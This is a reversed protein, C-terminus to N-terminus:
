GAEGGQAALKREIRYLRKRLAADEGRALLAATIAAAGGFDRARHELHKALELGGAADGQAWLRAWLAAAQDRAGSRRLLRACRAAAWAWDDGGELWPLADRYLSLAREPCRSREWWRAVAVADEPDLAEGETLLRALAALLGALSLVDDANHRFVMRLPAARGARVYDFYLSPILWGPLDDHRELRLLRREAEALKCGPMRHKYLRRVAHLLDFQPMARANHPQRALAMRTEVCPVDFARGNYTVLGSRGELDRALLWLMAREAGVDALFYQRLRFGHEEYTGLGAVVIYTGTGGALGTTEIDFFALGAPDPREAGGFLGLADRCARLPASLPLTGHQHDPAFWEDRVFAPGHPTELWGGQLIREIPPLRREAPKPLPMASTHAAVARRMRDLAATTM